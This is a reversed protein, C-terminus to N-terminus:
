RTVKALVCVSRRDTACERASRHHIPVMVPPAVVQSSKSNERAHDQRIRHARHFFSGERVLSNALRLDRGHSVTLCARPLFRPGTGLPLRARVAVRAFHRQRGCRTGKELGRPAHFQESPSLTM